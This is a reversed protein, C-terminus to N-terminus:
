ISNRSENPPERSVGIVIPAACSADSMLMIVAKIVGGDARGDQVQHLMSAYNGEVSSRSANTSDRYM